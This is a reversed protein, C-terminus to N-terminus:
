LFRPNRLALLCNSSSLPFSLLLIASRVISATCSWADLAEFAGRLEVDEHEGRTTTWLHFPAPRRDDPCASLDGGVRGNWPSRNKFRCKWWGTRWHEDSLTM